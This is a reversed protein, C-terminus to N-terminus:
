AIYGGIQWEGAPRLDKGIIFSQGSCQQVSKRMVHMYDFYQSWAESKVCAEPM